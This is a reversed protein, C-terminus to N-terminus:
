RGRLLTRIGAVLSELWGDAQDEPVRVLVFPSNAEEPFSAILEDIDLALDRV